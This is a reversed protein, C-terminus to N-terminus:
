AMLIAKDGIVSHLTNNKVQRLVVAGRRMNAWASDESLGQQDSGDLYKNLCIASWDIDSINSPEQSVSEEFPM